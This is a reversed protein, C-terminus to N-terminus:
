TNTHIRAQAHHMVAPLIVFTPTGVRLCLTKCWQICKKGQMGAEKGPNLKEAEPICNGAYEVESVQVVEEKDKM